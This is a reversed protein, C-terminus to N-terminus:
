LFATSSSLKTVFSILFSFDLLALLSTCDKRSGLLLFAVNTFLGPISQVPDELNM